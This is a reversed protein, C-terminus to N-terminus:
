MKETDISMSIGKKVTVSTKLVMAIQSRARVIERNNNAKTTDVPIGAATRAYKPRLETLHLNPYNEVSV